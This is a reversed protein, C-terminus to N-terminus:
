IKFEDDRSDQNKKIDKRSDQFSDQDQVQQSLKLIMRKPKKPSKTMM